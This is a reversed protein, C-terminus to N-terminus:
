AKAAKARKAAPEPALALAARLQDAFARQSAAEDLLTVREARLQELEADRDEDSRLGLLGAAASVCSACVIMDDVSYPLAGNEQGLIPGDYSVEFDIHAAEVDQQYCASCAPPTQEATRM